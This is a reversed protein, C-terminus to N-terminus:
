PQFIKLHKDHATSETIWDCFTITFLSSMILTEEQQESCSKNTTFYLGLADFLHSLSLGYQDIRKWLLWSESQKTFLLDKITLTCTSNRKM